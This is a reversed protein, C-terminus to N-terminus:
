KMKHMTAHTPRTQKKYLASSPRHFRQNGFNLTIIIYSIGGLPCVRAPVSVLKTKVQGKSSSYSGTITGYVSRTIM